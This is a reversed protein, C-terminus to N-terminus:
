DYHEVEIPVNRHELTFLESSESYINQLIDPREMFNTNDEPNITVGGEETTLRYSVGGMRLEFFLDAEDVLIPSDNTPISTDYVSSDHQYPFVPRISNNVYRAEWTIPEYSVCMFSPASAPQNDADHAVYDGCWDDYTNGFADVRNVSTPQKSSQNCNVDHRVYAM